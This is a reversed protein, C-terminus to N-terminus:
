ILWPRMPNRVFSLDTFEFEFGAGTACERDHDTDGIHVYRECEFRPVLSRMEHKRCVFDFEVGATRWMTEQELLTRDSSSGVVYGLSKANRAIEIAFPGPPDGTELTGDIDFSVLFPPLSLSM